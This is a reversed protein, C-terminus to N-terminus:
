RSELLNVGAVTFFGSLAWEAPRRIRRYGAILPPASFVIAYTSNFVLSILFCGSLMIAVVSVPMDARLGLAVIATWTLIAKPNTIHMLIGQLLITRLRDSTVPSSGQPSTDPGLAALASRFGLYLLYVAGAIQIARLGQPYQALLSTVGATALLGWTISGLAVGAALV